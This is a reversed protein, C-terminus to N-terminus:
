NHPTKHFRHLLNHINVIIIIMLSNYLVFLLMGQTLKPPNSEQQLVIWIHEQENYANVREESLSVKTKILVNYQSIVKTICIKM